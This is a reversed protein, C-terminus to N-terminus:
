DGFGGLVREIFEMRDAPTAHPWLVEGARETRLFAVASEHFERMEDEGMAGYAISKPVPVLGPGSPNPLWNIHGAGVKLWARFGSDFETFAEQHAFVAQEIAMHRRHFPGSRPRNSTVTTCEGPEMRVLQNWLRRWRRQHKEGLGDVIGFVVRRAADLDAPSPAARTRVLVIEPM